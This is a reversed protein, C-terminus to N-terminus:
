KHDLLGKAFAVAEPPTSYVDAIAKWIAEGSVMDSSRASKATDELVGPDAMAKVFASRLEAVKADPTGAPAVLPWAVLTDLVLLQMAQRERETKMLDLILPVDPLKPHKQYAMQVLIRVKGDRLWDPRQAMIGDWGWGCISQIEGREIAPHMQPLGTYGSIVKFKTGLLANLAVPYDWTRSGRGTSGAVLEHSRMDDLSKVPTSHWVTCLNVATSMSGIWRLKRPDYQASANGFLPELITNGGIIGLTTGDKPAVNAVHNTAVISGAGPMPKVVITPNGPLYKGMHRSLIVGTNHYLGGAGFGVVISIPPTQARAPESAVSVVSAAAISATVLKYFRTM